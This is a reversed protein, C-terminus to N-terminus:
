DEKANYTRYQEGHAACGAPDACENPPHATASLLGAYEDLADPHPLEDREAERQDRHWAESTGLAEGITFANLGSGPRMCEDALEGCGCPCIRHKYRPM